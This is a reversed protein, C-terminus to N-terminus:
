AAQVPIYIVDAPDGQQFLFRGAPIQRRRAAQAIRVLDTPAIGQFLKVRQLHDIDRQFSVAATTPM